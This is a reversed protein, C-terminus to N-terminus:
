ATVVVQIEGTPQQILPLNDYTRRCLIAYDAAEQETAFDSQELIRTEGSPLEQVIKVTPM